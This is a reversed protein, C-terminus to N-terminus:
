GFDLAFVEVPVLLFTTDLGHEEKLELKAPWDLSVVGGDETSVCVRQYELEFDNESEGGSRVVIRGRNLEKSISPCQLLVFRNFPTPSTFFIWEGIDSNLGPGLQNESRWSLHLAFGSTFGLAPAIFQFSNVSPFQSILTQFLDKFQTRIPLSHTSTTQKLRRRRFVCFERIQFHQKPLFFLPNPNTHLRTSVLSMTTSKHSETTETKIATNTIHLTLNVRLHILVSLGL